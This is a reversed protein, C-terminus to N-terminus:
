HGLPSTRVLVATVLLVLQAIALELMASRRLAAPGEPTALTPTLRKWNRLGLVMVVAVLALKGVLLRGYTTGALAALGDLQAWSAFVGTLGLVGVSVVAVPSYAPVLRPLESGGRERRSRADAYLVFALGGVWAGAALVHMTDAPVTFRSLDGTGSAHGSLAPYASLGAALPTAAIWAWGRGGAVFGWVIALLATAGAALLFTGGWETDRLLLTADETWTAFPDRFELLQRRFVLAMAVPLTLAGALGLRAAAAISRDREAGPGYAGPIVLWRAATAGATLVLGTFLLWGTAAGVVSDM